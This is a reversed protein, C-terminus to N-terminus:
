THEGNRTQNEHFAIIKLKINYQIHLYLAGANFPATICIFHCPHFVMEITLLLPV